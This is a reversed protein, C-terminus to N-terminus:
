KEKKLNALMAVLKISDNKDMVWQEKPISVAKDHLIKYDEITLNEFFSLVSKELPNDLVVGTGIRMITRGTEVHSQAIPISGFLGGEYIRNPLLWSSNLGEEFMDIAWTFHVDSYISPLDDPNKYAGHFSLGETGSTQAYFDDFQDLAPKGRIIVEVKGNMQGVLNKLIDLSKRCRIAGFWGIKWPPDSLITKVLPSAGVTGNPDYVKNELLLIPATIGSIKKLYEDIFAPSSTIVLSVSKSLWGEIGRMIKGIVGDNLLLRHIDLTEYILTQASRGSVAIALMELTRAMIIDSELFTKRYRFITASNLITVFMRHLFKGDYTRGLYIVPCEHIHSPIKEDRSFGMIKVKAGGDCLMAVRKHVATDSLDHVLYLIHPPASTM